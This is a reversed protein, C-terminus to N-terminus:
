ESELCRRRILTGLCWFVLFSAGTYAAEDHADAPHEHRKDGRLVLTLTLGAYEPDGTLGTTFGSFAGLVAGHKEDYENLFTM